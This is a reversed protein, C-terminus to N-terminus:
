RKDHFKLVKTYCKQTKNDFERYRNGIDTLSYKAEIM